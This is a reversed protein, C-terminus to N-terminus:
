RRRRRRAIILVYLSAHRSFHRLWTCRLLKSVGRLLELADRGAIDAINAADIGDLMNM